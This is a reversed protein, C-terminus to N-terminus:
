HPRLQPRNALSSGQDAVRCGHISFSALACFAFSFDCSSITSLAAKFVFKEDELPADEVPLEKLLEPANM